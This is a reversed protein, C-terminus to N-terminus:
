QLDDLSCTLGKVKVFLSIGEQLDQGSDCCSHTEPDYVFQDKCCAHTETNYAKGGEHNPNSCTGCCKNPLIEPPPGFCGGPKKCGLCLELCARSKDKVDVSPLFTIGGIHANNGIFEELADKIDLATASNPTSTPLATDVEIVLVTDQNEDRTVVINDKSIELGVLVVEDLGVAVLMDIISQTIKDLFEEYGEEGEEKYHDAVPAGDIHTLIFTTEFEKAVSFDICKPPNTCSWKSEYYDPDYICFSDQRTVNPSIELDNRCEYRVFFDWRNSNEFYGKDLTWEGNDPEDGCATTFQERCHIIEDLQVVWRGISNCNSSSTLSERDLSTGNLVQWCTNTDESNIFVGVQAQDGEASTTFQIQDYNYIVFTSEEDTVLFIQFTNKLSSDESSKVDTWTVLLGHTAVFGLESNSVAILGSAEVLQDSFADDFKEYVVNGSTSQLFYGALNINDDMDNVRVEKGILQNYTLGGFANIWIQEITANGAIKHPVDLLVRSSKQTTSTWTSLDAVSTATSHDFLEGEVTTLLGSLLILATSVIFFM